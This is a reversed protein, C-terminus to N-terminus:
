DPAPCEIPGTPITQDKLPGHVTIESRNDTRLYWHVEGQLGGLFSQDSPGIEWGAAVVVYRGGASVLWREGARPVNEARFMMNLIWMENDVPPKRDGTSGQGIKGGGEAPTYERHYRTTYVESCGSSAGFPVLRACSRSLHDAMKEDRTSPFARGDFSDESTALHSELVMKGKAPLAITDSWHAGRREVTRALVACRGIAPSQPAVHLPVPDPSTGPSAHNTVGCGAILSGGIWITLLTCTVRM